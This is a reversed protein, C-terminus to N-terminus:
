KVAAAQTPGSQGRKVRYYLLGRPVTASLTCGSACSASVTSGLSPTAGYELYATASGTGVTVQFTQSGSVPATTTYTAVTNGIGAGKDYYDADCHITSSYQRGATLGTKVFFRYRAGKQGDAAGDVTCNSDSKGATPATYSIVAFTDGSQVNVNSVPDRRPLFQLRPDYGSVEATYSFPTLAPYTYPNSNAAPTDRYTMFKAWADFGNHGSSYSDDAYALAWAALFGYGFEKNYFGSLPLTSPAAVSNLSRVVDPISKVYPALTGTGYGFTLATGIAHAAKTASTTAPNNRMAFRGTACPTITMRDASISCWYIWESDLKATFPADIGTLPASLTVPTVSASTMATQITIASPVGDKM